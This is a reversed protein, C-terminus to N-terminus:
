TELHFVLEAIKNRIDSLPPVRALTSFARLDPRRGGMQEGEIPMSAVPQGDVILEAQCSGIHAPADRMSGTFVTRGDSFRFVDSITMRLNSTM